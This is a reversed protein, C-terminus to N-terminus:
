TFRSRVYPKFQAEKAIKLKQHLTAGEPLALIKKRAAEKQAPDHYVIWTGRARAADREARRGPKKIGLGNM